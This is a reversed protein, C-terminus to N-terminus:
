EELTELYVLAKRAADEIYEYYDSDFLKICLKYYEKAQENFGQEQYIRGILLASESAFYYDEKAGLQIVKEFSELAATDKQKAIEIKGKLFYYELQYALVDEKANDYERLISDAQNVYGGSLLLRTKMLEINPIYDLGADYIAERDRENVDIGEDLVKTCYLLYATEDSQLLSYIALQYNIEKQYEQKELRNLYEQLHHNARKDLKRLLIKGLMYHYIVERYFGKKKGLPKLVALAEENRGTRYAINAKFYQLLFVDSMEGELTQIFHYSAEPSKNLKGALIVFLASEMNVGEIHEQLHYNEIILQSGYDPNSSVGFFSVAWRAFPPINSIAVNFFGDLKLSQKFDPYQKLNKYTKKYSSYAKKIGAFRSGKLINFIGLQLEMEAYCALYYPSDMDKEDMIERRKEYNEIFVQYDKDDSNIILAYADCTQELYYAYYNEPHLEIEKALTNKAADIDLDMLLVWAQKCRDNIDYVAFTKLSIGLLFVFFLYKKKMIIYNLSVPFLMWM